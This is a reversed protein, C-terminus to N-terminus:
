LSNKTPRDRFDYGFNIRSHVPPTQGSHKKLTVSLYPCSPLPNANVYGRAGITIAKGIVVFRALWNSAALSFIPTSQPLAILSYKCLFHM